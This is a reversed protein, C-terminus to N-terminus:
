RHRLGPDPVPVAHARRFRRRQHHLCPGAERGHGGLRDEPVSLGFLDMDAMAKVKNWPFEGAADTAEADPALVDDCFEQVADYLEQQEEPFGFDM